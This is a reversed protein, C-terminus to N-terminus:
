FITSNVTQLTHQSGFVDTCVRADLVHETFALLANVATRPRSVGHHFLHLDRSHELKPKMIIAFMLCILSIFSIHSLHTPPLCDRVSDYSGREHLPPSHPIYNLGTTSSLGPILMRVM